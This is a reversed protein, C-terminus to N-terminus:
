KRSRAADIVALIKFLSEFESVELRLPESLRLPPVTIRVDARLAVEVSLSLDVRPLPLRLRAFRLLVPRPQDFASQPAPSRYTRRDPVGSPAVYIVPPVPPTPTPPADPLPADVGQDIAEEDEQQEDLLALRTEPDDPQVVPTPDLWEPVTATEPEEDEQDEALASRTESGDEGTPDMWDPADDRDPEEEVEIEVLASLAVIPDTAAVQDFWVVDDVVVEDDEVPDLSIEALVFPDVTLVAYPFSPMDDDQAEEEVVVEEPAVDIITPEAADQPIPLEAPEDVGPDDEPAPESADIAIATPEIADVPVFDVVDPQPEEEDFVADDQVGLDFRAYPRESGVDGVILISM